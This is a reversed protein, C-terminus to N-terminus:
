PKVGCLEALRGTPLIWYGSNVLRAHLDPPIELMIALPARYPGIERVGPLISATRVHKPLGLLLYIDAADPKSANGVAFALPGALTAFLLVAAIILARQFKVPLLTV